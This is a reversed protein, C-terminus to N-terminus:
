AHAVCMITIPISSGDSKQINLTVNQGVVIGAFEFSWQCPAPPPNIAAGYIPNPDNSIYAATVQDGETVTGWTFFGGAGPVNGNNSPYCITVAM